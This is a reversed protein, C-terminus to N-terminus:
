LNAPPRKKSSVVIAALIRTLQDAENVLALCTPAHGSQTELCAKLWVASEKASRLAIENYRIFEKRSSASTAECRNAPISGAAAVLQEILRRMGPEARITRVFRIVACLFECARRDIDPPVTM